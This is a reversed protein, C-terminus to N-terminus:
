SNRVAVIQGETVIRYVGASCREFRTFLPKFLDLTLQLALASKSRRCHLRKHKSDRDNNSASPGAALALCNGFPSVFNRLLTTVSLKFEDVDLVEVERKKILGHRRAQALVRVTM